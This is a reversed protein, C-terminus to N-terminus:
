LKEENIEDIPIIQRINQGRYPLSALREIEAKNDPINNFEFCSYKNGCIEIQKGSLVYFKELVKKSNGSILLVNPKHLNVVKELYTRCNNFINTVKSLRESIPVDSWKITKEYYPNGQIICISAVDIIDLSYTDLIFPIWTEDEPSSIILATPRASNINNKFLISGIKRKQKCLTCTEECVIHPLANSIIYGDKGSALSYLTYEFGGIIRNIDAGYQRTNCYQAIQFQKMESFSFPFKIAKKQMKKSLQSFKVPNDPIFILRLLNDEFLYPQAYLYFPYKEMNHEFKVKENGNKDKTYVDNIFTDVDFKKLIVHKDYLSKIEADSLMINEIYYLGLSSSFCYCVDSYGPETNGSERKIVGTIVSLFYKEQAVDIQVISCYSLDSMQTITTNKSMILRVQEETFNLYRILGEDNTMGETMLCKPTTENAICPVPGNDEFDIIAVNGDKDVGFWDTSMSHTAPYEKNTKM